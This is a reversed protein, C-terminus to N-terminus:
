YSDKNKLKKIKSLKMQGNVKLCKKNEYKKARITKGLKLDPTLKGLSFISLRKYRQDKKEQKVNSEKFRRKKILCGCSPM